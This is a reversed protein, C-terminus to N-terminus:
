SDTGPLKFEGLCKFQQEMLDLAGQGSWRAEVLSKVKVLGEARVLDALSQFLKPSFETYWRHNWATLQVIADLSGSFNVVDVGNPKNM